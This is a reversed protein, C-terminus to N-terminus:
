LQVSKNTHNTAVRRVGFFNLYREFYLATRGPDNPNDFWFQSRFRCGQPHLTEDCTKPKESEKNSKNAM